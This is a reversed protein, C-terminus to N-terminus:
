TTRWPRPVRGSPTAVMECAYRSATSAWSVHLPRDEGYYYLRDFRLNDVIWASIIRSSVGEVLFDVAVGDRPCIRRHGMSEHGAHQDLHPCIRPPRGQARAHKRIARTLEASSFGYTLTIPGFRKTTPDLISVALAELAAWTAPECPLNAPASAGTSHLESLHRFTEGCEILDRFRFTRGCPADLDFTM